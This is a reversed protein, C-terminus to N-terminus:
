NSCCLRHEVLFLSKTITLRTQPIFQQTAALLTDFTSYMASVSLNQFTGLTLTHDCFSKVSPCDAKTFNWRPVFRSLNPQVHNIHISIISHHSDLFENTHQVSSNCAISFNWHDLRHLTFHTLSTTNLWVYTHGEIFSVPAGGSNKPSSGWKDHHCNFDECIRTM